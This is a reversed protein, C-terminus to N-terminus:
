IVEMESCVLHGASVSLRLPTPVMTSVSRPVPAPGVCVPIVGPPTSCGVRQCQGAPGKGHVGGGPISPGLIVMLLVGTRLQGRGWGPRGRSCLHTHAQCARYAMDRLM